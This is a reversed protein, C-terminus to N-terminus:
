QEDTQKKIMSDNIGATLATGLDRLDKIIPSFKDLGKSKVNKYLGRLVDQQIAELTSIFGEIKNNYEVSREMIADIEEPSLTIEETEQEVNNFDTEDEFGGEFTAADEEPSIEPEQLVNEFIRQYLKM